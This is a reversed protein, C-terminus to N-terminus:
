AAAAVSRKSRVIERARRLAAEDPPVSDREALDFVRMCTDYIAEVRRSVEAEDRGLLVRTASIAGGANAVYDPVFLIGRRHLARGHRPDALQNNAGGCVVPAKIRDVTDDNIVGGLACPALVDAETELIREPAVPEAGFAAVARAVAGADVDAIFIRAGAEALHSCLHRGVNGAGQVAVRLGRLDTRGLRRRVAARMAQYLGRGTEPATDSAAGSGGAVHRTVRGVVAMDAPTTGLDPGCIYRGALEEVARGYAELLAESKDNAPDGIIVSKGGGFPLDALAMKWTMARSLRLADGIAADPDAYPHFRVGGGAPGLTTDHIAIIAALGSERDRVMHVREHDDFAPHEFIGM